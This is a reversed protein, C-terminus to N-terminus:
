LKLRKRWTGKEKEGRGNVKMKVAHFQGGCFDTLGDLEGKGLVDAAAIGRGQGGHGFRRLGLREHARAFREDHGPKGEGFSRESFKGGGDFDLPRRFVALMDAFVFDQQFNGARGAGNQAGLADRQIEDLPKGADGREGRLKDLGDLSSMRLNKVRAFRRGAPPTEFFVGDHATASVVM